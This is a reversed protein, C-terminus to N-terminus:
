SLGRAGLRDWYDQGDFASHAAATLVIVGALAWLGLGPVVQALAGLKVLSVLVGLLFVELMAWPRLADLLRLGAELRWFRARSRLALLLYVLLTLEVTPVILTTVAVVTAVLPIGEKFLGVVADILGASSHSGAARLSVIPNANAIVFLILAALTLPLVRDLSSGQPRHLHADCRACSIVSGPAPHHVEQVLDCEHCAVLDPTPASDKLTSM